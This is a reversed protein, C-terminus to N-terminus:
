VNEQFMVGAVISLSLGEELVIAKGPLLAFCNSLSFCKKKKFVALAIM